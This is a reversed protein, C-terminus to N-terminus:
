SALAPGLCVSVDAERVHLAKADAESYVAIATRGSDRAENLVRVAIEGRNAILLSKM